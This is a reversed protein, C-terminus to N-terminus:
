APPRWPSPQVIGSSEPIRSREPVLGHHRSPCAKTMDGIVLRWCAQRQRDVPGVGAASSQAETNQWGLLGAVTKMPLYLRRLKSQLPAFDFHRYFAAAAEDKTDVVVAM